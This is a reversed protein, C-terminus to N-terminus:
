YLNQISLNIHVYLGLIKMIIILFILVAMVIVIWQSSYLKQKPKLLGRTKKAHCKPCLAQCNDIGNNSRNGDIHDYDWVGGTTSKCMACNYNQDHLTQKKVTERFYRRKRYQTITWAMAGIIILIFVIEAPTLQSSQLSLTGSSAPSSLSQVQPPNVRVQVYSPSSSIKNDYVIFEFSQITPNTVNPAVFTPNATSISDYLSVNQDGIQYWYYNLNDGDLDCSNSGDLTVNEGSSVMESSGANATPPADEQGYAPTIILTTSLFAAIVITM